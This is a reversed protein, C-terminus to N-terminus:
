SSSAVGTSRLRRGALACMPCFGVFATAVAFLTAVGFGLGVPTLGFHVACSAMLAGTIFRAMRQWRPLNKKYVM